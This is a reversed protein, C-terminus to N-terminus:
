LRLSVFSFFTYFLKVERELSYISLSCEKRAWIQDKGKHSFLWPESMYDYRSCKQHLPFLNRCTFLQKKCQLHCHRIVKHFLKATFIYRPKGGSSSLHLSLYLSLYITFSFYPPVCLLFILFSRLNMRFYCSQKMINGLQADFTFHCWLPSDM